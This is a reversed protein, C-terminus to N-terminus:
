LDGPDCFLISEGVRKGRALVPRLTVNHEKERKQNTFDDGFKKKLHKKVEELPKAIVVALFSGWGCGREGSVDCVGILMANAPLELVEAKISYTWATKEKKEPKGEYMLVKIAEALKDSVKCHEFEDFDQSGISYTNENNNKISTEAAIAASVLMMVLVSALILRQNMM